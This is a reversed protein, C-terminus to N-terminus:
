FLGGQFAPINEINCYRCFDEFVRRINTIDGFDKPDIQYAWKNEYGERYVHLHSGGITTGDPNTHPSGDIDLRVLIIVKRGRIQKKIKSLRLSGRWIDLLFREKKDDSILEHTQDSGPSISIATTQEFMKRMAILSDAEVQTLV